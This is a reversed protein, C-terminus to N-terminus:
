YFRRLCSSVVSTKEFSNPKWVSTVKLRRAAEEKEKQSQKLLAAKSPKVEDPSVWINPFANICGQEGSRNGAAAFAKEHLSVPAAAVTSKKTKRKAAASTDQPAAEYAYVGSVGTNPLEDLYARGVGSVHMPPHLSKASAAQQQEKKAAGREAADHEAKWNENYSPNDLLLGPYGYTGKKSPCTKINPLHTKEPEMSRAASKNRRKKKSKSGDDWPETMYEFPKSQFCGFYSGPGTSKQPYSSYRFERESIVNKKRQAAAANKWKDEDYGVPKGGNQEASALTLYKKDFYADPLDGSLIRGGITMNKGLYRSPICEEKNYPDTKKPDPDSSLYPPDQFLGGYVSDTM